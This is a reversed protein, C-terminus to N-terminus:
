SSPFPMIWRGVTGLRRRILVQWSITKAINRRNRMITVVVLWMSAVGLIVFWPWDTKAPLLRYLLFTIVIAAISVLSLIRIALHRENGPPVYPYVDRALEEEELISFLDMGEIETPPLPNRCLPCTEDTGRIAVKCHNCYKLM